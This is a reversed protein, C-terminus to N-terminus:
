IQSLDRLSFGLLVFQYNQPIRCKLMMLKEVSIFDSKNFIM